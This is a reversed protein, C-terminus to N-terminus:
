IGKTMVSIKSAIAEGGGGDANINLLGLAFSPFKLIVGAQLFVKVIALAIFLAGQILGARMTSALWQGWGALPSTLSLETNDLVTNAHAVMVMEQASIMGGTIQELVAAAKVALFVALVILMPKFALAFGKLIFQIINAKANEGFAYGAAFPIMIMYGFVEVYWWAIVVGAVLLPVIYVLSEILIKAAETAIYFPAITYIVKKGIEMIKLVMASGADVLDSLFPIKSLWGGGGAIAETGTAAIEAPATALSTTGDLINKFTEYIGTAGPVFLFASRQTMSEITNSLSFNGTQTALSTITRVDAPANSFDYDVGKYNVNDWGSKDMQSDITSEQNQMAQQAPLLAISTWGMDINKQLSKEVVYKVKEPSFDLITQFYAQRKTSDKIYSRYAKEATICTEIDFWADAPKADLEEDTYASKNKIYNMEFDYIPMKLTQPTASFMMDSSKSLKKFEDVRWTQTCSQLINANVQAKEDAIAAERLKKELENATFGTQSSIERVAYKANAVHVHNVLKDALDTGEAVWGAFINQGRTTLGGSGGYLIIFIPIGIAFRHFVEVTSAKGAGGDKTLKFFIWDGALAVLSLFVFILVIYTQAAEYPEKIEKLFDGFFSNAAKSDTQLTFDKVYSLSKSDKGSQQAATNSIQDILPNTKAAIADTYYQVGDQVKQDIAEQDLCNADVTVKKFNDGDFTGKGIRHSVKFDQTLSVAAGLQYDDSLLTPKSTLAWKVLQDCSGHFEQKQVLDDVNVEVNSAANVSIGAALILPLIFKRM